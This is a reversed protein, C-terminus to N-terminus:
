EITFLSPILNNVLWTHRNQTAPDLKEVTALLERTFTTLRNALTAGEESASTEPFNEWARVTSMSRGQPNNHMARIFLAPIQTSESHATKHLELLFKLRDIVFSLQKKPSLPDNHLLSTADGNSFTQIEDTAVQIYHGLHTYFDLINRNKNKALFLLDKESAITARAATKKEELARLAEAARQQEKEELARLRAEARDAEVAVDHAHIPNSLAFLLRLFDFAGKTGDGLDFLSSKAAVAQILKTLQVTIREQSTTGDLPLVPLSREGGLRTVLSQLLTNVQVRRAEAKAFLTAVTNCTEVVERQRRLTCGLPIGSELDNRLNSTILEPAYNVPDIDMVRIASPTIDFVLNVSPVEVQIITRQVGSADLSNTLKFGPLLPYTYYRIDTAPRPKITEQWGLFQFGEQALEASFSSAAGTLQVNQAELKPSNRENQLRLREKRGVGFSQQREALTRLGLKFPIRRM